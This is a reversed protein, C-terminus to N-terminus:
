GALEASKEAAAIAANKDALVGLSFSSLLGCLRDFEQLGAKLREIREL